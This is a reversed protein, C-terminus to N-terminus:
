TQSDRTRKGTASPLDGYQIGPPTVLPTTRVIPVLGRRERWDNRAVVIHARPQRAGPGEARLAGPTVQGLIDDGAAAGNLQLALGAPHNVEGLQGARETERRLPYPIDCWLLRAFDGAHRQIPGPQVKWHRHTHLHLRQELRHRCRGAHPNHHRFYM